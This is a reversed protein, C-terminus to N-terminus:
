VMGYGISNNQPTNVSKDCDEQPCNYNRYISNMPEFWGFFGVGLKSERLALFYVFFAMAAGTGIDITFHVQLALIFITNWICLIWLAIPFFLWFLKCIGNQTCTQLCPSTPLFYRSWLLSAFVVNLTHGSFFTGYCTRAGYFAMRIPASFVNFHSHICSHDKIYHHAQPSVTTFIL